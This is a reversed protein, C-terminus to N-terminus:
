LFDESSVNPKFDFTFTFQEQLPNVHAISVKKIKKRSPFTLDGGKRKGSITSLPKVGTLALTNKGLLARQNSEPMQGEFKFLSESEEGTEMDEVVVHMAIFSGQLLFQPLQFFFNDQSPQDSVLDQLNYQLLPQISQFMELSFAPQGIGMVSRDRYPEFHVFGTHEIMIPDNSTDGFDESHRDQYIVVIGRAINLVECIISITRPSAILMTGIQGIRLRIALLQERTVMANKGFAAKMIANILCNNQHLIEDLEDNETEVIEKKSSEKAPKAYDESELLGSALLARPYAEMLTKYFRRYAVARKDLGKDSGYIKGHLPHREDFPRRIYSAFDVKERGILDPPFAKLGGADFLGLLHARLAEQRETPSRKTFIKDGLLEYNQLFTRHKGEARGGPVSGTEITSLPLFNVFTLYATVFSELFAAQDDVTAEEFESSEMTFGALENFAGVLFVQHKESLRHSLDLGEDQMAEKAKAVLTLIAAYVKKGSLTSRVADLHAAWATTHAGMTASFPSRTRGIMMVEGIVGHSDVLVTTLFGSGSQKLDSLTAEDHSKRLIPKEKSVGSVIEALNKSDVDIEAEKLAFTLGLEQSEQTHMATFDCAHPYARTITQVFNNVSAQWIRLWHDDSKAYEQAFAVPTEAAFLSWLSEILAGKLSEEGTFKDGKFKELGGEKIDKQIGKSGLLKIEKQVEESLGDDGTQLVRSSVYEFANIDGRVSGEGHGSPDGGKVTAMPLYNIYTLYSDILQQIMQKISQTTAKNNKLENELAVMDGKMQKEAEDLKQKHDKGLFDILERLPSGLGKDALWLLYDAGEPLETNVLMRRVEDVHAIWATSHAGMTGPFPSPTRGGIVVELIWVVQEENLATTIRALVQRQVVSQLGIAQIPDPLGHDGLAKAQVPRQALMLGVARNGAARELARRQVPNSYGTVPLATLQRNASTSGTQAVPTRSAARPKPSTPAPVKQASM